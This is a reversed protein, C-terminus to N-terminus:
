WRLPKKCYSENNRGPLASACIAIPHGMM